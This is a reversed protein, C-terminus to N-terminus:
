AKQCTQKPTNDLVIQALTVEQLWARCLKRTANFKTLSPYEECLVDIMAEVGQADQKTNGVESEAFAQVIPTLRYRYLANLAQFFALHTKHFETQAM